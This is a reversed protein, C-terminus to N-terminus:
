RSTRAPSRRDQGQRAGRRASAGVRTIVGDMIPRPVVGFTAIVVVRNFAKLLAAGAGSLLPYDILDQPGSRGARLTIQFGSRGADSHSVKVEEIARVLDPPAPTPVTGPGILLTMHVGLLSM